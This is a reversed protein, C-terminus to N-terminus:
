NAGHKKSKWINDEMERVKPVSWTGESYTCSVSVNALTVYVVRQGDHFWGKDKMTEKLAAVGVPYRLSKPEPFGCKNEVTFNKITWTLLEPPTKGM